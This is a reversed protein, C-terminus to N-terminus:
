GRAAMQTHAPSRGTLGAVSLAMSVATDVCLAAVLVRLLRDRSAAPM